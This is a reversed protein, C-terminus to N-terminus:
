HRAGSLSLLRRSSQREVSEVSEVSMLSDATLVTHPQNAPPPLHVPRRRVRGARRVRQQERRGQEGGAHTDPVPGISAGHVRHRLCPSGICALFPSVEASAMEYLLTRGPGSSLELQCCAVPRPTDTLQTPANQHCAPTSRRSTNPRSPTRRWCASPPCPPASSPHPRTPDRSSHDTPSAAACSSRSRTAASRAQGPM